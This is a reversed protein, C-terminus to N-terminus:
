ATREGDMFALELAQRLLNVGSIQPLGDEDSAPRSDVRAIGGARAYDEMAKAREELDRACKELEPASRNGSLTRSLQRYFRARERSLRAQELIIGRVSRM